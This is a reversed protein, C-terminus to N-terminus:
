DSCRKIKAVKVCKLKMSSTSVPGQFLYMVIQQLLWCDHVMSMTPLTLASDRHWCVFKILIICCIRICKERMAMIVVSNKLNTSNLAHLVTKWTTLVVVTVLFVPSAWLKIIEIWLMQQGAWWTLMWWHLTQSIDVHFIRCIVCRGQIWIGLSCQSMVQRIFIVIESKNWWQSCTVAYSM